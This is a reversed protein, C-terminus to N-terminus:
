RGKAPLECRFNAADDTSGHGTYRAVQPYPCLPRSRAVTDGGVIKRAVISDPAKGQEVWDVIASVADYQDPGVGGSCHTMGPVMFLRLFDPTQPGNKAVAQEYYHVGALPQLVQDAWGYTMILKGGRMRFSGLDPNTANVTKGWRDLLGVDRDFDFSRYDYDPKPPAFVLYRMTAEALGFDAPKADPRGPVILNTWGSTPTGNPGPVLAESGPMYGPFVQKGGSVPGGYIKAFTRAQASTLCSPSDTGAVCSQVDRAPDFSCNRPDDILGDALGDVADCKQMVRNAVLALKEASLPAEDLARQNWIAGITFGTQDVWPANAVIGDFDDPFRQAEVLGQRGGNSCSNFYAREVPMEYYAAVIRKATTATLHVARYAYDIATQPNRLVFTGPAGKTADHGTDTSVMVFGHALAAARQAARGPGDPQEGALGGNGIMYLRGNWREPLNVEFGIEPSLVGSVRCHAPATDTAPMVAATVSVAEDLKLSSLSRCQAKPAAQTSTYATRARAADAFAQAHAVCAAGFTALGLGIAIAERRARGGSSHKM